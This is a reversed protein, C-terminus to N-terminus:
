GWRVGVARLLVLADLWLSQHKVYYLDYQLCLMSDEISGAYDQHIMAWGAMGPKVAHRLRHFPIVKDM